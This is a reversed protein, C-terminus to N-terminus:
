KIWPMKISKHRLSNQYQRKGIGELVMVSQHEITVSDFGFDVKHAKEEMGLIILNGTDLHSQNQDDFVIGYLKEGNGNLFCALNSKEFNMNPCLKLVQKMLAELFGGKLVQPPFVAFGAHMKSVSAM